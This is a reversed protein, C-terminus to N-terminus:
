LESLKNHLWISSGIGAVAIVFFYVIFRVDFSLFTWHKIIYDSLRDAIWNVFLFIGFGLVLFWEESLYDWFNNM